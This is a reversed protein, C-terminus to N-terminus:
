IQPVAKADIIKCIGNSCELTDNIRESFRDSPQYSKHYLDHLDYHHNNQFYHIERKIKNIIDDPAGNSSEVSDFIVWDSKQLVQQPGDLLAEDLEKVIYNLM